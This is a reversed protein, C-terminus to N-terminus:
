KKLFLSYEERIKEYDEGFVKITEGAIDEGIKKLDGKFDENELVLSTANIDEPFTETFVNLGIGVIMYAKKEFFEAECLIGCVKKEGIFVDNPAKILPSFGYKKLIRAVGVCSVVAYKELEDAKPVPLTFSLFLDKEREGFWIHGQRGRGKSQFDATVVLDTEGVKVLSKTIDNTGTVDKFHMRKM